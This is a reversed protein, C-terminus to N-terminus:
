RNLTPPDPSPLSRAGNLIQQNIYAKIMPELNTIATDGMLMIKIPEKAVIEIQAGVLSNTANLINQSAYAFAASITKHSDIIAQQYKREAEKQQKVEENGAAGQRNEVGRVGREAGAVGPREGPLLERGTFDLLENKAMGFSFPGGLSSMSDMASLVGERDRRSVKSEFVEKTLDGTEAFQRLENAM